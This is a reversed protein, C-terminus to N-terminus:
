FTLQMDRPSSLLIRVLVAFKRINYSNPRKAGHGAGSLRDGVLKEGARKALETVFCDAEPVRARTPELPRSATPISSGL